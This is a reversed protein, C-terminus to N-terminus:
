YVYPELAKKFTYRSGGKDLLEGAEGQDIVPEMSAWTTLGQRKAERLGELRDGPLAAGKPTYILSM